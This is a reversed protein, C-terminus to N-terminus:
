FRLVSFVPRTCSTTRSSPRFQFSNRVSGFENPVRKLRPPTEKETPRSWRSRSLHSWGGHEICLGVGNCRRGEKERGDEKKSGEGVGKRREGSSLSLSLRPVAGGGRSRGRSGREGAVYRSITGFALRPMEVGVIAGIRDLRIGRSRDRVAM